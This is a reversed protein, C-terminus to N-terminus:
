RRLWDCGPQTALCSVCFKGTAWDMEFRQLAVLLLQPLATIQLTKRAAVELGSAEDRYGEILEPSVYRALAQELSRTHEDIFLTLMNFPQPPAPRVVVRGAVEYELTSQMTGGFLAHPAAAGPMVYAELAMLLQMFMESVDQQQFVKYGDATSDNLRRKTYKM